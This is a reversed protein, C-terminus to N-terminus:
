RFKVKNIRCRICYNMIDTLRFEYNDYYSRGELLRDPLTVTQNLKGEKIWKPIRDTDTYYDRIYDGVEDTSLSIGTIGSYKLIDNSLEVSREWIENLDNIRVDNPYTANTFHREAIICINNYNRMRVRLSHLREYSKSTFFKSNLGLDYDIFCFRELIGEPLKKDPPESKMNVRIAEAYTNNTFLHRFLDLFVKRQCKKEVYRDHCYLIFQYLGYFAAFLSIVTAITWVNFASNHKEISDIATYISDLKNYLSDASIVHLSDVPNM